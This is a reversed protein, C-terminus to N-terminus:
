LSKIINQVDLYNTYNTKFNLKKADLILRELMCTKESLNRGYEELKNEDIYKILPYLLQWIAVRVARDESTLSLMFSTKFYPKMMIISVDKFEQFVVVNGM